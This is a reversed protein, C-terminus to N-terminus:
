ITVAKCTDSLAYALVDYAKEKVVKDGKRTATCPPRDVERVLKASARLRKYEPTAAFAWNIKKDGPRAATGPIVLHYLSHEEDFAIKADLDLKAKDIAKMLKELAKKDEFDTKKELDSAALLDVLRPERLRRAMKAAALDHEQVNLLFKTLPAGQLAAGEKPKVVHDETAPPM